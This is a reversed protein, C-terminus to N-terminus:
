ALAGLPPAVCDVARANNYPVVLLSRLQAPALAAFIASEPELCGEHPAPRRMAGMHEFLQM